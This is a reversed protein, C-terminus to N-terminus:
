KCEGKEKYSKGCFPCYRVQMNVIEHKNQITGKKTKSEYEVKLPMYPKVVWHDETDFYLNQLKAEKTNSEPHRKSFNNKIKNQIQEICDCM